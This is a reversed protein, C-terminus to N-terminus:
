RRGELMPNDYLIKQEYEFDYLTMIRVRFFSEWYDEISRIYDRKASERENLSINLDTISIEGNQFKKLAIKYGNEAVKDAEKATRLQDRLLNFKEVQVIVEREFDERDKQVDFIVLDRQSEALRVQSASRGWDLIPISMSLKLYQQQEPQKYVGGFVESSNSLGYSGKLTLNLSNERKARELDRDAEMLRRKFRIIDDKNEKAQKLAKQPDIRYLTMDLPIILEVDTEQDLGIYSKLQFDANKLDMEAKRLAKRANLVSLRIRSFDNESITGLEQRVKAINLNDESNKLNNKALMFNTQIKLYNFFRSTARLAIEEMTELYDRQSEEYILPERKKYWKMWNYSFIPQTFGIYVPSGSFETTGANLDNIGYVSSAAYIRTGTRAISQNLALNTSAKLQSVKIFKISGDPQTVPTQSNTFDPVDGTLVLQPRFNTQFNKYRWYTNVNRNQAYKVDSSQTVALDIVNRLSLQLTDGLVSEQGKLGQLSFLLLMGATITNRILFRM